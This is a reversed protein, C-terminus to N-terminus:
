NAWGGMKNFKKFVKLNGGSIYGAKSVIFMEANPNNKLVKGILKESEANTYNSATDVLNFGLKIANTLALENEASNISIRYAGFGVKTLDCLEVM